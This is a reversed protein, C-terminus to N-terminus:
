GRPSVPAASAVLRVPRCALLNGDKRNWGQSGSSMVVFAVFDSYTADETSSVYWRPQSSFRGEGKAAQNFTGKLSGENKSRQVVMLAEYSPIKWDDHGLALQSNLKAVAKVADNFTMTVELDQPMAFVKYKGDPTSGAYISGDPMKTGSSLPIDGEPAVTVQLKKM